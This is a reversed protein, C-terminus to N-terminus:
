NYLVMLSIGDVEIQGGNTARLTEIGANEGDVVISWNKLPITFTKTEPYPNILVIVNKWTEGTLENEPDILQYAICRESNRPIWNDRFKFGKLISERRTRRFTPHEKRLRILGQYYKFIDYNKAKLEWKIANVDDSSTNSNSDFIYTGPDNASLKRFEIKQRLFEQGAHIFPVGQSTLLIAAGLKDMKRLKQEVNEDPFQTPDDFDVVAPNTKSQPYKTKPSNKTGPEAYQCYEALILKDWLTFGDHCAIYNLSNLPSRIFQWETPDDSQPVFDIMGTIAKRVLEHPKHGKESNPYYRENVCNQVYGGSYDRQFGSGKVADRFYDNFGAISGPPLQYDREFLGIHQRDIYTGNAKGSYSLWRLTWLEGYLLINPNIARLERVVRASTAPDMASMWDFRFGDIKFETVWYKLCDLIYKRVMPNETYLENGCFIGDYLKGDPQSRYYYDMDIGRFLFSNPNDRGGEFTHNFVVDMTVRIGRRHFESIMKKFERIRSDDDISTAYWGEVSFYNIPGYGWDYYREDPWAGFGDEYRIYKHKFAHENGLVFETVPLIQVVTVGLEEIHDIGTKFNKHTSNAYAAGPYMGKLSDPVGSNHGRTLDRIHMEYIIADEIKNYSSQLAEVAGTQAPDFILARGLTQNFPQKESKYRVSIGDGRTVIKAYPDVIELEPHCYEGVSKINYTYYKGQLDGELTVQWIGGTEAKLSIERVFEGATRIPYDSLNLTVSTARPAFLAFHTANKSYVAGLKTQLDYYQKDRYIRNLILRKEQKKFHVYYEKKINIRTQTTLRIFSPLEAKEVGSLSIVQGDSDIIELENLESLDEISANFQISLLNEGDIYGGILQPNNTQAMISVKILFLFITTIGIKRKVITEM